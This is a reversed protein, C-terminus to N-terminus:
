PHTCCVMPAGHQVSRLSHVTPIATTVNLVHAKVAACLSLLLASSKSFFLRLPPDGM